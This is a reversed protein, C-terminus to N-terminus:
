KRMFAEVEAAVRAPQDIQIFHASDEIRVLRAGPANTFSLRVASEFQEPPIPANPPIVYLVTMPATIRPLEFRLDTVLGEHFAIPSQRVTATAHYQLLVSRMTETRTMAPIMQEILNRSSGSPDALIQARMQDAMPRVGEATIGPPGFMVGMFPTTDVVM